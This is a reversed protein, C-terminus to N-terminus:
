KRKKVYYVVAGALVLGLLGFGAVKYNIKKKNGEPKAQSVTLSPLETKSDEMALNVNYVGDVDKFDNWDNLDVVLKEKGVRTASISYWGDPVSVRYNGNKDSTTCYKPSKTDYPTGDFYSACVHVGSLPVRQGNENGRIVGKVSKEM